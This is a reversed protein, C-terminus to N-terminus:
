ILAATIAFVLFRHLYLLMLVGMVLLPGSLWAWWRPVGFARRVSLALWVWLVLGQLSSVVDDVATWHPQFGLLALGRLALALAPYLLVIFLLVFAYFHLAQVGHQALPRRRRWFLLATLLAFPGAMVIVSAKALTQQKLNFRDEFRERPLGSAALRDEFWLRAQTSYVQDRLHSNLPNALVSLGSLSQVVFFVVNIGLFLPLPPVWRRRQGEAHARTLEGPRRLLSVLSAWWRQLLRRLPQPQAPLREEGCIACFRAAAAGSHGCSPCAWRVVSGTSATPALPDSKV